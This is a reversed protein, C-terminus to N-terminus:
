IRVCRVTVRSKGGLTCTFLTLDWGDCIMEDVDSKELIEISVVRYTFVNGDVDTFTIISDYPLSSIGGFHSSYNHAMVILNDQYASGAYRCPAIKLRSYTWDSIVPLRIALCPIELVGIYDQENANQVPMEMQPNLIYDPIIEESNEENEMPAPITVLPVKEEKTGIIIKPNDSLLVNLAEESLKGAQEENWLNYIVLLFSLILLVVGILSLIKGVKRM